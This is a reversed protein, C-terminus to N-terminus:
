VNELMSEVVHQAKAGVSECANCFHSGHRLDPSFEVNTLYTGMRPHIIFDSKLYHKVGLHHHLDKVLSLLKEKKEGTLNKPPFIYIDAGRFDPVSHVSAPIGDIFEEVLISQNHNVGDEIAGVLEGFTKAVHIGMDLDPVLSRVIWPASFKQHVEKAKKISYRERPGDFDPQYQPLIITRPMKVGLKKMHERLMERSSTVAQSFMSNGVNPISLNDLDRSHEPHATNWVVNVKHKIDAPIVPLGNVHWVGDKDILIDVPKYKHSLNENLYAIIDGGNKLSAEYNGGKGGRIIGVRKQTVVSM